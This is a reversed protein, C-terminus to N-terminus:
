EAIPLEVEVRGGQSRVKITMLREADPDDVNRGTRVDYTYAHFPCSIVSGILDGDGIPLGAHPCINYTAVLTGEINYLIIPFGAVTLCQKSGPAIENEGAADIWKAM